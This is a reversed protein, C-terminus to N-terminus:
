EIEKKAQFAEYCEGYFGALGKKGCVDEPKYKRKNIELNEISDCIMLWEETKNMKGKKMLITYDEVSLYKFHVVVQEKEPLKRNDNYEPIYDFGEAIDIKM